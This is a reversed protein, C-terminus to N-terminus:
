PTSVTLKFAGSGSKRTVSIKLTRWGCVTTASASRSLTLREGRAAKLTVKLTGDLPTAITYSRTAVGKKAFSGSRTQTTNATWPTIVDQEVLSLATDDPYLSQSVVDWPAEPLGAKRENLVRYSEAFAEGPNLVYDPETEAGPYLTGAAAKSCVQEYSAWRKTGYDIAAWPADSRHAAVHHGYEHTVVAEASTDTAPDDGPAVLLNQDPSYCGIAQQGCISQVEALPALYVTLLLLESGHVLGALFDAWHQGLAPDQPYSSSAYVTVTEGTSATYPGGWASSVKQLHELSARSLVADRIAAPGRAIDAVSPTKLRATPQAGAATVAAALAVPVVVLVVLARPRPKRPTGSRVRQLLTHRSGFSLTSQLERKPTV